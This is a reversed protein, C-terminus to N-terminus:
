QQILNNCFPVRVQLKAVHGALPAAGEKCVDAFLVRECGRLAAPLEAPVDSLLPCDIIVVSASSHDGGM